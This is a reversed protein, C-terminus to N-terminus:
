TALVVERGASRGPRRPHRARTRPRGHAHGRALVRLRLIPSARYRAASTRAQVKQPLRVCRMAVTYSGRTMRRIRGRRSRVCAHCLVTGEGRSSLAASQAETVCRLCCSRSSRSSTARRDTTDSENVTDVCGDISYAARSCNRPGPTLGRAMRGKVSPRCFVAGIIPSMSPPSAPIVTWAMPRAHSVPPSPGSCGRMAHRSVVDLPPAPAPLLEKSHEALDQGADRRGQTRDRPSCHPGVQHASIAEILPDIAPVVRAAHCGLYCGNPTM